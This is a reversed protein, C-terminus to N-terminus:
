WLDSLVRLSGQLLLVSSCSRGYKEAVSNWCALVDARRQSGRPFACEGQAVAETSSSEDQEASAGGKEAPDGNRKSVEM